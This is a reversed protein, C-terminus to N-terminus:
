AAKRRQLWFYSSQIPIEKKSIVFLLDCIDFLNCHGFNLIGFM